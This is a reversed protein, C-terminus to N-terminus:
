ALAGPPYRETHKEDSDTWCFALQTEGVCIIDGSVLEHEVVRAGNVWTGSASGADTLLVRVGDFYMQCHNRSVLPDTLCIWNDQGRGVQARQGRALSYVRGRDPGQVIELHGLM